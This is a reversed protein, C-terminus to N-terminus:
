PSKATPSCARPHRMAPSQLLRFQDDCVRRLPPSGATTEGKMASEISKAIALLSGNQPLDLTKIRDSKLFAERNAKHPPADMVSVRCSADGPM